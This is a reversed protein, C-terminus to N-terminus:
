YEKHDMSVLANLETLEFSLRDNADFRCWQGRKKDQLSLNRRVNNEGEVPESANGPRFIAGNFLRSQM